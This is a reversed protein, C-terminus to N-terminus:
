RPRLLHTFRGETGEFDILRWPELRLPERLIQARWFKSPFTAHEFNLMLGELKDPQDRVQGEFWREKIPPEGEKTPPSLMYWSEAMFVVAVAATGKILTRVSHAWMDKEIQEIDHRGHELAYIQAMASIPGGERLPCAIAEIHPLKPGPLLEKGPEFAPMECTALVIANIFPSLQGDRLFQERMDEQLLRCFELMGAETELDLEAETAESM